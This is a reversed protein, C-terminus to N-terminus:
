IQKSILVENRDRGLVRSAISYRVTKLVSLVHVPIKGAVCGGSYVQVCLCAGMGCVCVCVWAVCVCVCVCVCM